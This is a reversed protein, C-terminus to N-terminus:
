SREEHIKQLHSNINVEALKSYKKPLTPYIEAIMQEMTLNREICSIVQKERIRRHDLAKQLYGIGGFAIGHSPIIVNPNMEIIKELTNFYTAMHGEPPSIVVTGVGQILDGVIMWSGDIVMPAIQGNDHGPVLYSIVDKGMWTNIVEGPLLEQFLSEDIIKQKRELNKKTEKSIKIPVQLSHALQEAFQHHDSHHHTILIDKIKLHSLEDLLINFHLEDKPSPDVVTQAYDGFVFCNTSTAPPLTNSPVAIQRLGAMPTFSFYGHEEVQEINVEHNYAFSKLIIQIPPVMLYEGALFRQWHSMPSDIITQEFEDDFEFSPRESLHISVFTTNFRHPNFSPPIFEALKKIKFDCHDLDVGVEEKLERQLAGAMQSDSNLADLIKSNQSFDDKEVKGGPFGHYGPFAKMSTSRRVILM